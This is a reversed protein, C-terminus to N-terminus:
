AMDPFLYRSGILMSGIPWCKSIKCPMREMIAAVIVLLSWGLIRAIGVPSAFYAWLSFDGFKPDPINALTDGETTPQVSPPLDKDTYVEESPSVQVTPQVM